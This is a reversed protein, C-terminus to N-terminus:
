REAHEEVPVMGGDEASDEPHSPVWHMRVGRTGTIINTDLDWQLVTAQGSLGPSDLVAGEPFTLTREENRFVAIRGTLVREEYTVKVDDEMSVHQNGNEVRGLLSVAHVECPKGDGESHLFYCVVPDRVTIAGSEQNLTAWDADLDFSKSGERGQSLQVGRVALDVTNKVVDPPDSLLENIDASRVVNALANLAQHTKWSQWGYWCGWALLLVATPLVMRRLSSKM